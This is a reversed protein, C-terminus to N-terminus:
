CSVIHKKNSGIVIPYDGTFCSTCFVSEVLGTARILGKLSLFHLSDAKIFDAIESITKRSAILEKQTPTAIGYFDPYKVPPSSSLVHIEKAGAERIMAVVKKSTTGRVLSDDVLVVRKGKIVEKIPNFKM